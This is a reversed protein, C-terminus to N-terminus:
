RLQQRLAGIDNVSLGTAAAITADDLGSARILNIATQRLAEAKGEERADKLLSREDRLARERVFALRRTEADASLHKLKDLAARVPEDAIQSMTQDEQWHEFLAIWAALAGTEQQLRDAKRLEILNLQLERDLTVSPTKADRMEFCWIAQGQHASDQFLDFDLLHIGIAPKLGGYDDGAVLQGSVLKALYYASRASWARYRRVQM